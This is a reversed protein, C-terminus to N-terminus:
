KRKTGDKDGKLADQIKQWREEGLCERAAKCWEICSPIKEKIVFKGCKSCKVRLEDSFMEVEQGCSPCIHISVKINRSSQGPCKDFM